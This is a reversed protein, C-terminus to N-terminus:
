SRTIRPILPTKVGQHVVGKTGLDIPERGLCTSWVESGEDWFLIHTGQLYIHIHRPLFKWPSLGERRGRRSEGITEVWIGKCSWHVCEPVDEAPPNEDPWTVMTAYTVLCIMLFHSGQVVFMPFDLLWLINWCNPKSLCCVMLTVLTWSRSTLDQVSLSWSDTNVCSIVVISGLSIGERVSAQDGKTEKLWM